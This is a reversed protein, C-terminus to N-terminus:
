APKVPQRLITRLKEPATRRPDSLYIEHHNGNFALGLSPMLEHHLHHLVPAEDAFPGVHLRTLCRGEDFIELRLSAPKDDRKKVTKEIVREVMDQTIWEPQLIMLTWRWEDRRGSETYASLDDAYWLGELPMVSYDRSLEKKSMFKVPYSVSFLWEVATFYEPAEGPSGQGDVMLYQMPPVNVEVWEKRSPSYLHKLMKKFDTKEM